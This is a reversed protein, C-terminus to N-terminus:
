KTDVPSYTAGVQVRHFSCTSFGTIMPMKAFEHNEWKKRKESVTCGYVWGPLGIKQRFLPLFPPITQNQLGFFTSVM